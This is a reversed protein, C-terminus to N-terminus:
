ASKAQLRLYKCESKVTIQINGDDCKATIGFPRKHIKFAEPVKKQITKLYDNIDEYEKEDQWREYLYFILDAIQGGNEKNIKAWLEQKTM